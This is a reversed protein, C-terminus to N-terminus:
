LVMEGIVGFLGGEENNITYGNYITHGSGNFTGQFQVGSSVSAISSWVNEKSYDDNLFIDSTM